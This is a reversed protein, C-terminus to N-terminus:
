PVNKWIKRKLVPDPCRSIMNRNKWTIFSQWHPISSSSQLCSSTSSVHEKKELTTRQKEKYKSEKPKRKGHTDGWWYKKVGAAISQELLLLQTWNATKEGVGMSGAMPSGVVLWGAEGRWIDSVWGWPLGGGESSLDGAWILTGGSNLHRLKLM